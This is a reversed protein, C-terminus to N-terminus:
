LKKGNEVIQLKPAKFNMNKGNIEIYGKGTGKDINSIRESTFLMRWSDNDITGLGIRTGINFRLSSTLVEAEPRQLGLVLYCYLSRGLMAVEKLKRDLEQIDKKELSSKLIAYEDIVLYLPTNDKTETREKFRKYFEDIYILVQEYNEATKVGLEFGWEQVDEFKMDLCYINDKKTTKALNYLLYKLYYSKGSGSRGVVAISPNKYMDVRIGNNLALITSIEEELPTNLDITYIEEEENLLYKLEVKDIANKITLLEKQLKTELVQPLITNLKKDIDAIGTKYAIINLTNDKTYKLLPSIIKYNDDVTYIDNQYMTRKLKYPIFWRALINDLFSPQRKLRVKM